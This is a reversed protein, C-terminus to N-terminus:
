LAYREGGEKNGIDFHKDEKKVVSNLHDIHNKLIIQSIGNFETNERGNHYDPDIIEQKIDQISEMIVYQQSKSCISITVFLGLLM